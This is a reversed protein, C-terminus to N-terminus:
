NPESKRKCLFKPATHVHNTPVLIVAQETLQSNFNFDIEDQEPHVFLIATPQVREMFTPQRIGFLRKLRLTRLFRSSRQYFSIDRPVSAVM